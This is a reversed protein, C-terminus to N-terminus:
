TVRPNNTSVYTIANNAAIVYTEQYAPLCAALAPLISICAETAIPISAIAILNIAPSELFCNFRAMSTISSHKIINMLNIAREQNAPFFASLAPDNNSLADAAIAISARAMLSIPVIDIPSITLPMATIYEIPIMNAASTLIDCNAPAFASLAPFISRWIDTEIIINDKAIANNLKKSGASIATAVAAISENINVKEYRMAAVSFIFIPFPVIPVITVMTTAIPTNAADIATSPRRLLDLTTVAVAQIDANITINPM